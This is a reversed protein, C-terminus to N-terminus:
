VISLMRIAPVTFHKVLNLHSLRCGSQPDASLISLCCFPYFSKAMTAQRQWQITPSYPSM